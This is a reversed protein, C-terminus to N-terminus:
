RKVSIETAIYDSADLIIGGDRYMQRVKEVAVGESEAEAEIIRSLTETIEIRYKKM